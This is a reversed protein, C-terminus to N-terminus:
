VGRRERLFRSALALLRSPNLGTVHLTGPERAPVTQGRAHNKSTHADLLLALSLLKSRTSDINIRVAVLAQGRDTSGPEEDAAAEQCRPAPM